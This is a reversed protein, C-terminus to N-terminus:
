NLKGAQCGVAVCERYRDDLFNRREVTKDTACQMNVYFGREDKWSCESNRSEMWKRQGDRLTIKMSPELKSVLKKYSDNLEKDATVYIKNLCYLGDFDNKPKECNDSFIPLSIFLLFPLALLLPSGGQTYYRLELLFGLNQL